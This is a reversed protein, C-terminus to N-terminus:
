AVLVIGPIFKGIIRLGTNTIWPYLGDMISWGLVYAFNGKFVFFFHNLEWIGFVMQEAYKVIFSFVSFLAIQVLMPQTRRTIMYLPTLCLGIWIFTHMFNNVWPIFSMIGMRFFGFNGVFVLVAWLIGTVVATKQEGPDKPIKRLARIVILLLFYFILIGIIRTIDM